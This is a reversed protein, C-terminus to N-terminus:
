ADVPFEYPALVFRSLEPLLASAREEEGRRIQQGVVWAVGGVVTEALTAPLRDDDPAHERLLQAFDRLAADRRAASARTASLAEILCTRAAGPREEVFGLFAALGAEVQREWVGGAERCAAEVDARVEDLSHDIAALFLGEKGDFNDYLTKRAVGARRVIDAIRTAEYGRAAVLDAMAEMIRRRKHDAVFEPPLGPRIRKM